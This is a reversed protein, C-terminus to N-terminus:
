LPTLLSKLTPCRGPKPAQVNRTKKYKYKGRMMKIIKENLALRVTVMQSPKESLQYASTKLLSGILRAARVLKSTALIAVTTAVTMAVSAASVRTLPPVNLPLFRAEAVRILGRIIGSITVATAVRARKVAIPAERPIPL